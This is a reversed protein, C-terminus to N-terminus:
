ARRQLRRDAPAPRDVHGRDESLHDLHAVLRVVAVPGACEHKQAIEDKRLTPMGAHLSAM